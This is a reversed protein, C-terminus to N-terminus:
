TQYTAAQTIVYSVATVSSDENLIFWFLIYLM